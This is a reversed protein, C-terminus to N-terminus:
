TGSSEAAEQFAQRVQVVNNTLRVNDREHLPINRDSSALLMGDSEEIKEKPTVLVELRQSM